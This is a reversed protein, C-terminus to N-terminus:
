GSVMMTMRSMVMVVATMCLGFFMSSRGEFMATVRM